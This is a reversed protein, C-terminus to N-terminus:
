VNVKIDEDVQRDERSTACVCVCVFVCVHVRAHGCVCTCKSIMVNLCIEKSEKPDWDYREGKRFFTTALEVMLQM